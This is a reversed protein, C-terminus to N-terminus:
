ISSTKAGMISLVTETTSPASSARRRETRVIILESLLSVCPLYVHMNEIVREKEKENLHSLFNNNRMKEIRSTIQLRRDNQSRSGSCSEMM